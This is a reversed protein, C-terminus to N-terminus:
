GSPKTKRAPRRRRSPRAQAPHGGIARPELGEQLEVTMRSGEVDVTIVVGAVAPVLLETGGKTVVYVDNAGTSIVETIAGLHEGAATYVAMDILQFFYYTDAPAAPVATEPVLVPQGVLERAAEASTVETLDVLLVAPATVVRRVTYGAGAITLDAGVHFRSPNNTEPMVRLRGRRGHIGTVTGVQVFGDAWPGSAQTTPDTSTM